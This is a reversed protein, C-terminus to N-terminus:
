VAIYLQLYRRCVIVYIQLGSLNVLKHIHAYVQKDHGRALHLHGLSYLAGVVLSDGYDHEVAAGVGVFVRCIDSGIVFLHPAVHRAVERSRYLTM